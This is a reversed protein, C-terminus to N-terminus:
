GLILATPKGKRRILCSEQAYDVDKSACRGPGRDGRTVKKMANLLQNQQSQM